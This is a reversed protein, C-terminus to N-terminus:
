STMTRPPGSAPLDLTALRRFPRNCDRERASWPCRMFAQGNRRTEQLVANCDACRADRTM